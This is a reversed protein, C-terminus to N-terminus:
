DEDLVFGDRLATLKDVIKMGFGVQHREGHKTAFDVCKQYVMEVPNLGVAEMIALAALASLSFARLANYRQFGIYKSYEAERAAMRSLENAEDLCSSASYVLVDSLMEHTNMPAKGIANAKKYDGSSLASVAMEEKVNLIGSHAMIIVDACELGVDFMGGHRENNRAHNRKARMEADVVEASEQVVYRACDSLDPMVWATGAMEKRLTEHLVFCKKLKMQLNSMILDDGM